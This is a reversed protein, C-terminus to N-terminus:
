YSRHHVFALLAQRNPRNRSVSQRDRDHLALWNNTVLLSGAATPRVEAVADAARKVASLATAIGQPVNGYAALCGRLISREYFRMGLEGEGHDELAM